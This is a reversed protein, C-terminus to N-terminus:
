DTSSSSPWARDCADEQTTGGETSIQEERGVRFVVTAFQVIDGEKLRVADRIREGNVYTGNTSELDRIWLASDREFLEAHEKSVCGCPLTLSLNSRRGIRFPTSRIPVHRVPESEDVQGAFFWVSAKLALGHSSLEQVTSM